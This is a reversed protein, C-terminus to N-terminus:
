SRGSEVDARRGWGVVVISKEVVAAVGADIRACACRGIHASACDGAGFDIRAHVRGVWGALVQNCTVKRLVQGLLQATHLIHFTGHSLFEISRPRYLVQKSFNDIFRPLPAFRTCNLATNADNQLNEHTEFCTSFCSNSINIMNNSHTDPM